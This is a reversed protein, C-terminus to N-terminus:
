FGTSGTTPLWNAGELDRGWICGWFFTEVWSQLPPHKNQMCCFLSMRHGM